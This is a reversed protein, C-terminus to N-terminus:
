AISGDSADRHWAEVPWPDISAGLWVIQATPCYEIKCPGQREVDTFTQHRSPSLAATASAITRRSPFSHM